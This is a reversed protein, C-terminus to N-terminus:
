ALVKGLLEVAAGYDIPMQEKEEREFHATALDILILPSDPRQELARTAARISSEYSWDLLDARAKLALWEADDPNAQLKRSIKAEAESLSPPANMRSGGALGREVRIPGYRALPIRPELTRLESYASALLQAPSSARQWFFFWSAMVALMVAAATAYAWQSRRRAARAPPTVLTVQYKVKTSAQSLRQALRKRGEPQSSSLAAVMNEEEPRLGGALDESAERLLAGCHDCHAAHALLGGSIEPASLGAALQAWAEGPPCQPTRVPENVEKLAALRRGFSQQQELRRQCEACATLHAQVEDPDEPQLTITPEAGARLTLLWDIEDLTLHADSSRGL